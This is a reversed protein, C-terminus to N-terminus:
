RALIGRHLLLVKEAESLHDFNLRLKGDPFVMQNHLPGAGRYCIPRKVLFTEGSPQAEAEPEAMNVRPPVYPSTAPSGNVPEALPETSAKPKSM